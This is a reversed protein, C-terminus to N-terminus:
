WNRHSRVFCTEQNLLNDYFIVSKRWRGTLTSSETPSLIGMPTVETVTGTVQPENMSSNVPRALRILMVWEGLFAAAWRWEPLDRSVQPYLLFPDGEPWSNVEVASYGSPLRAHLGKSRVEAPSSESSCSEWSRKNCNGQLSLSFHVM